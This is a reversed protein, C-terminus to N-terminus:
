VNVGAAKLFRNVDFRENDGAFVNALSYAVSDIVENSDDPDVSAGAHDLLAREDRLVNAIAVYHQTTFM